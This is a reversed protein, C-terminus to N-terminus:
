KTTQLSPVKANAYELVNKLMAKGQETM